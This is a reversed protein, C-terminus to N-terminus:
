EAVTALETAVKASAAMVLELVATASASVAMVLELAATALELM